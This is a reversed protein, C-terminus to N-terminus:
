ERVRDSPASSSAPVGLRPSPPVVAPSNEEKTGADGRGRTGADKVKGALLLPDALVVGCPFRVTKDFTVEITLEDGALDIDLPIAAQKGAATVTQDLVVQGGSTIKVRADGQAFEPACLWAVLRRSGAIPPLRSLDFSVALGPELQLGQTCTMQGAGCTAYEVRDLAAATAILPKADVKAPKLSTLAVIGARQRSVTRLASYPLRVNGLLSHKLVVGESGFTLAGRLRTSDTLTVADAAAGADVARIAPDFVYRVLKERSVTVAGLPTDISLKKADIWILSGPISEDAVRYLTNKDASKDSPRGVFELSALNAVNLELKGLLATQLTLTKGALSQIDGVLIDGDALRVASSVGGASDAPKLAVLVVDGWAVNKGPQGKEGGVTLHDGAFTVPGALRQTLTQVIDDARCIAASLLMTLIFLALRM